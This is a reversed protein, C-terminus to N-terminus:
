GPAELSAHVREAALRIHTAMATEALAADGGAIADVLTVHSAAHATLRDPELGRTAMRLFASVRGRVQSAVENLLGHDALEWLRSRFLQDATTM